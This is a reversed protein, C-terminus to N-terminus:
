KAAPSIGVRFGIGVDQAEKDLGLAQFSHCREAPSYYAGGRVVKAEGSSPGAPNTQHEASFEGYWDRCWESVNGHMDYIGWANAKRTKVPHTQMTSNDKFWAYEPLGDASAGFSYQEKSGARCAYEWQAETPMSYSRGTAESLKRCFENAEGWSLTEVPLDAGKHKSPNAGTIKEFLAQTVEAEAIWYGTLTVEHAQRGDESDESGMQCDGGAIWVMKITLGGGLDETFSQGPTPANKGASLAANAAPAGPLASATGEGVPAKAEPKSKEEKQFITCGACVWALALALALISRSQIKMM